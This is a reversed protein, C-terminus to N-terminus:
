PAWRQGVSIREFGLWAFEMLMGLVRQRSVDRHDDWWNALARLAGVLQQALMEIALETQHPDEDRAPADAQMLAAIANAAEGQLRGVSAVVGPEEPNRVLMRWAERREEVFRLFADAGARLRQEGPAAAQTAAMVRGLLEHVYTELLAGHLERKSAFHEYILAKSIGAREAVAELSTEHFGSRAFEDLAADLIAARRDAATM